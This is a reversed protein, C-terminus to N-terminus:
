AAGRTRSRTWLLRCFCGLRAAARRCSPGCLLAPRLARVDALETSRAIAGRSVAVVCLVAAAAALTAVAATLRRQMAGVIWRFSLCRLYRITRFTTTSGSFRRSLLGDLRSPWPRNRRMTLHRATLSSFYARCCPRGVHRRAAGEAHTAGRSRAPAQAPGETRSAPASCLPRCTNSPQAACASTIRLATM